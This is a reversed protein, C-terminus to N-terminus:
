QIAAPGAGVATPATASGPAGAIRAPLRSIAQLMKMRPGLPVGIEKLHDDTLRPLVDGDIESDRFAQAFRELGQRRLWISIDM